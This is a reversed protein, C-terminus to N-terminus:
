LEGLITHHRGNSWEKILKPTLRLKNPNLPSAAINYYSPDYYGYKQWQPNFWHIMKITMKM